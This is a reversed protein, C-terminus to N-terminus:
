LYKIEISWLPFKRPFVSRYNKKFFYFEQNWFNSGTELFICALGNFICFYNGPPSRYFLQELKILFSESAPTRKNIKRFSECRHVVAESFRKLVPVKISVHKSSMQKHSSLGLLFCSSSDRLSYHLYYLWSLWVIAFHNSCRATVKFNTSSTPKIGSKLM